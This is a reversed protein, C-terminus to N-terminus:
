LKSPSELVPVSLDLFEKEVPFSRLGLKQLSSQCFHQVPLVIDYFSTTKRWLQAQLLSNKHVSYKNQSTKKEQLLKTQEQQVPLGLFNMIDALSTTMNQCIEDYHLFKFRLVARPDRVVYLIQFDLDENELFTRAWPLSLRLVKLLHVDASRCTKSVFSPDYCKRTKTCREMLYTNAWKYWRWRNQYKLIAGHTRFDCALIDRLASTASISASNPNDTKEHVKVKFIHLPEYSYFTKSSWRKLLEGLFTSGSRWGTWLLIVKQKKTKQSQVDINENEGLGNVDNYIAMERKDVEEMAEEKGEGKIAEGGNSFAKGTKRRDFKEDKPIGQEGRGEVGAEEQDSIVAESVELFDARNQDFEHTKDLVYKWRSLGTKTLWLNIFMLTLVIAFVHKWNYNKKRLSEWLRPFRVSRAVCTM